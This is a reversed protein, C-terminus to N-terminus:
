GYYICGRAPASVPFSSHHKHPTYNWQLPRLAEPLGAPRQGVLGKSEMTSVGARPHASLSPVTTSTRRTTGNSYICGRAPASVPFSSHHKHPTYNWQLPRLAEPLGAPRQGVLGKSEMTSVGARPHASLSPVTTSTRRTTGNSDSCSSGFCTKRAGVVPPLSLKKFHMEAVDLGQGKRGLASYDM